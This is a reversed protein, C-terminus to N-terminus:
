RKGGKVQRIPPCGAAEWEELEPVFWRVLRGFRTPQPAKGADVLRRWHETSFDYRTSCGDADLYRRQQGLSDALKASLDSVRM